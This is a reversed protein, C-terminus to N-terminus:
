NTQKQPFLRRLEELLASNDDTTNEVQATNEALQPVACFKELNEFLNCKRCEERNFAVFRKKTTKDCCLPKQCHVTYELSGDGKTHVKILRKQHLAKKESITLRLKGGQPALIDKINDATLYFYDNDYWLWIDERKKNQGLLAIRKKKGTQSFYTDIERCISKANDFDTYTPVGGLPFADEAARSIADFAKQYLEESLECDDYEEIFLKFAFLLLMISEYAKDSYDTEPHLNRFKDCFSNYKNKIYHIGEEYMKNALKSIYYNISKTLSDIGYPLAENCKKYDKCITPFDDLRINIINDIKIDDISERTIVCLSRVPYHGEPIESYEDVTVDNTHYFKKLLSNFQRKDPEFAIIPCDKALRTKFYIDSNKDLPTIHFGKYEVDKFTHDRKYLNTFFLATQRRMEPTGGTIAMLLDPKKNEALLHFENLLSLLMFSFLPIAINANLVELSQSIKNAPKEYEYEEFDAYDICSFPNELKNFSYYNKERYSLDPKKGYSVSEKSWGAISESEHVKDEAHMFDIIEEMHENFFKKNCCIKFDYEKTMLRIFRYPDEQYYDPVTIEAKEDESNITISYSYPQGVCTNETIKSIYFNCLKKSSNEDLQVYTCKDEVFYKDKSIDKLKEPKM